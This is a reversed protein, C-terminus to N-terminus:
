RELMKLTARQDMSMTMGDTGLAAGKMEMRMTGGMSTRVPAGRGLSFLQEGTLTGSLRLQMAQGQATFSIPDKPFETAVALLITTDAGSAQVEKVTIKSKTKIPGSSGPVTGTPLEMQVEWSDGAGVPHEPFPFALTKFSGLIQATMQPPWGPPAALSVQEAHMLPDYTITSKMGRMQQFMQNMMGAPMLPSEASISDFTVTVQVHGGATDGVQQTFYMHMTIKQEGLAVAPGGEFKVNSEQDFAFHYTAGAPPHFRLLVKPGGSGCGALPALVLAALTRRVLSM